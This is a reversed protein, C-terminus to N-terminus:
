TGDVRGFKGNRLHTHYVGDLFEPQNRAKAGKSVGEVLANRGDGLAVPLRSAGVLPLYPLGLRGHLERAATM